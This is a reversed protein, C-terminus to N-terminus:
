HIALSYLGGDSTQVVFGDGSVVPAFRIASGDTRFRAVFSGDERNMAHLYGDFDGVLLYNDLALPATTNRWHMQDNKWYSSGSLKDLALVTGVTDTLFLYKRSMTLGKDSSLERTWLSGGQEADFCALRGQFAVACVQSDDVIPLSTIDSVRELETNGRPQSVSAEWVLVGNHLGIAALKGAAFGAYVIGHRITVGANSRAVLAPTAREYLWLRKGNQSDLGAIRGDGTRVVVVGEALKPASLVESSVKSKWRLQGGAEEYAAVDGKDGGVLVLGDGAGVGGSIAFSTNIRWLQKGSDRAFRQLAGTGNAAFVSEGAVVPLLANLGMKGVSQKWRVEFKATSNFNVLSAPTAQEKDGACGVLLVPLLAAIGHNLKM